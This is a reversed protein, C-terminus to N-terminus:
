REPSPHYPANSGHYQDLFVPLLDEQAWPLQLKETLVHDRLRPFKSKPVYKPGEECISLAALWQGMDISRELAEGKAVGAFFGAAFADGAGTTDRIDDKNIGHVPFTKVNDEGQIAVVTPETGQTVIAISRPFTPSTSPSPLSTPPRSTTPSPTPPPRPRTAL